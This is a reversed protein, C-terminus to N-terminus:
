KPYRGGAKNCVDLIISDIQLFSGHKDADWFCVEDNVERKLYQLFIAYKNNQTSLAHRAMGM